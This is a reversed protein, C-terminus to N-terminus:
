LQDWDSLKGQKEASDNQSEVMDHFFCNADVALHEVESHSGFKVFFGEIRSVGCKSLEFHQHKCNEPVIQKRKWSLVDVWDKSFDESFKNM